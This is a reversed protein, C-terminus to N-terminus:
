RCSLPGGHWRGVLQSTQPSTMEELVVFCGRRDKVALYSLFLNELQDPNEREYHLAALRVQLAVRDLSELGKGEALYKRLLSSVQNTQDSGSYSFLGDIM